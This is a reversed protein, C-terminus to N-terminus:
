LKRGTGQRLMSLLMQKSATCQTQLLSYVLKYDISTIVAPVATLLRSQLQLVQLINYIRSNQNIPDEQTFRELVYFDKQLNISLAMGHFSDTIIYKAVQIYGLFQRPGVSPLFKWGKRRPVPHPTVCIVGLHLKRAINEIWQRHSPNNGLLYCFLFPREIKPYIALKRWHEQDILFTPDLVREIPRNLLTRLLKAGQEERVTIQKFRKLYHQYLPKKDEPIAPLGISSGYSYKPTAEDAFSLLYTDDLVNPAWIQDSGCLYMKFKGNLRFLAPPPPYPDAHALFEKSFRYAFFHFRRPLLFPCHAAICACLERFQNILWNSYFYPRYNIVLVSYGFQKILNFLAYAQLCSGVNYHYHWTLLGVDTKLCVNKTEKILNSKIGSSKLLYRM